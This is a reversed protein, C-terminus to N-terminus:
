YKRANDLKRHVYSLTCLIDLADAESMHWTTKPEHALPNRIMGYIGILFNALGTQEGKESKSAYNNIVINPQNGLLAYTVLDSGDSYYGTLERLKKTVSKVAELVTHFYNDYIIEDEASLLIDNHVNRLKLQNKLHQARSIAEYINGAKDVRHIQGDEQLELGSFALIKNTRGVMDQYEAVHETFATPALAHKIFLLINNSTNEENQFQTFSDYLRKWKTNSEPTAPLSAKKLLNTIDRGIILDSKGLIKALSKLSADDFCDFRKPENM